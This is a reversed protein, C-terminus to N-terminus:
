GILLLQDGGRATGNSKVLNCTRCLLRLNNPENLGPQGTLWMSIPIIHDVEAAQPHRPDDLVVRSRCVQCRGGDREIIYQRRKKWRNSKRRWKQRKRCAGCWKTGPPALAIEGCDQCSQEFKLSDLYQVLCKPCRAPQWSSTPYHQGCQVCPQTRPWPKTPMGDTVCVKYAMQCKRGCFRRRSSKYRRGTVDKGCWECPETTVPTRRYEQQRACKDSCYKRRNVELPAGCLACSQAVRPM